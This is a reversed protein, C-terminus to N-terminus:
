AAERLGEFSLAEAVDSEQLAFDEAIDAVPEGAEYRGRIAWTPVGKVTPAGFSVRPDITVESGPGAVHWRLALENEYDFELFRDAILKEWGEQGGQDAVIVARSLDVEPEVEGLELFLHHGETKFELQAFPYEVNFRQAAYDRAKRIRQLTLGVKRFSAVVAVEILELYSLPRGRERGPLAPGLTGGRYHWYTITERSTEAYRAADKIRYAPLYLRRRWPEARVTQTM